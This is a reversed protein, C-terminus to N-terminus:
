PNQKKTKQQTESIYRLIDQCKGFLTSYYFPGLDDLIAWIFSL